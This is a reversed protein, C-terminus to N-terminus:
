LKNTVCYIIICLLIIISLLRFHPYCHIGKNELINELKKIEAEDFISFSIFIVRMLFFKRKKSYITFYDDLKMISYHYYRIDDYYFKSQWFSYKVILFNDFCIIKQITVLHFYCFPAFIILIIGVIKHQIEDLFIGGVGLCFAFAFLATMILVIFKSWTTDLRQLILIPNIQKDM